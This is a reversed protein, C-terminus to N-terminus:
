RVKVKMVTVAPNVKGYHFSMSKVKGMNTIILLIMISKAKQKILNIDFSIIKDGINVLQNQEAFCDFGNGNLSVTDIGIHIIIELGEKTRIGIAHKTPFMQIIKGAVPAYLIGEAPIFAVGDGVMKAAFVEDPVTTIDVAKGSVPSKFEITNKRKFLDLM